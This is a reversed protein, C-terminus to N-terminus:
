DAEKGGGAFRIERVCNNGFDAVYLGGGPATALGVPSSFRARDGGGDGWGPAAPDQQGAVLEVGEGRIQWLCHNGADLVYVGPRPANEGLVAIGAPAAVPGEEEGSRWQELPGEGPGTWIRGGSSDAVWLRNDGGVAVQTPAKLEGEGRVPLTSVEGTPSIRRVRHNGADAVYVVGEGDVAVGVPYCFQAQGAPGDGYGGVERGIDDRPTEAGAYTSVVGDATVCRVRHNGTDAVLVRGDPMVAVGAPGSFRAEGAPGDVYGPEGAAGAVTMVQGAASVVRVTHNRSDAVYVSGTGNGAVSVPGDFLAEKSGGDRHGSGSGGALTIVTLDALGVPAPPGTDGSPGGRSGGPVQRREEVVLGRWYLLQVVGLVLVIGVLAIIPSVEKKM